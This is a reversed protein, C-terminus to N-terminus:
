LSVKRWTETVGKKGSRRQTVTVSGDGNKTVKAPGPVIASESKRGYHNGGMLVLTVGNYRYVRRPMSADNKSM